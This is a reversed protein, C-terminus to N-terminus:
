HLLNIVRAVNGILIAAPWLILQSALTGIAATLALYFVMAKVHSLPREGRASQDVIYASTPDVILAFSITAIGNVVGSAPLATRAVDPLLISAYYSAVVGIAYIGTVVANGILLKIPLDKTSFQRLESIKPIRVTRFVEAVVNPDLLRILAQLMSGRREFSSVGRVFMYVFTPLLMAGIVTGITGAFVIARLQWEFQSSEFAASGPFKTVIKAARDALSGLMPAYFMNAFRSATVFLSFLSIATGVRGSKAGAIRAAYAGTQIFAILTNFTM